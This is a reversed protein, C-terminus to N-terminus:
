SRKIKFIERKNSEANKGKPGCVKSKVSVYILM